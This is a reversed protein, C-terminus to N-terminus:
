QNYDVESQRFVDSIDGEVSQVYRKTTNINTHNALIAAKTIGYNLAVNSIATHRFRHPTIRTKTDISRCLNRIAEPHVSKGAKTCLFINGKKTYSSRLNLYVEILNRINIQKYGSTNPVHLTFYENYNSQTDNKKSTPINLIIYKDTLKIDDMTLELAQSIRMGTILLLVFLTLNRLIYFKDIKMSIIINFFEILDDDSLVKKSWNPVKSKFSGQIRNYEDKSLLEYIYMMKAISGSISKKSSNNLPIEILWDRLGSYSIDYQSHIYKSWYIGLRKRTSPSSTERKNTSLNLYNKLIDM